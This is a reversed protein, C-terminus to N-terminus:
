RFSEAFRARAADGRVWFAIDPGPRQASWTDRVLDDTADPLPVPAASGSPLEGCRRWGQAELWGEDLAGLESTDPGTVFVDPALRLLTDAASEAGSRWASYGDPPFMGTGPPAAAKDLLLEQRVTVSLGAQVLAGLAADAQVRTDERLLLLDYRMCSALPLALLLAALAVRLPRSRTAAWGAAALVALFPTASLSYRAQHYNTGLVLFLVAPYLGLLLLERRHARWLLPALLLLAAVLAPEARAYTALMRPFEELSRLGLTKGPIGLTLANDLAGHGATEAVWGALRPVAVLAGVAGLFGTLGALGARWALGWPRVLFVVLLACVGLALWALQVIAAVVGLALGAVLWARLRPTRGAVADNDARSERSLLRFAPLGLLVLLTIGPVHIRAQHACAVHPLSVAVIAAALLAAGRALRLRALLYVAPVLLAGMLAIYLRAMRHALAPAQLELVFDDWSAWRPSPRAQDAVFGLSFVGAYVFSHVPPYPSRNEFQGETLLTVAQRVQLHDSHLVHPLGHQLGVLRLALALLTLACLAILAARRGCAGAARAADGAEGGAHASM